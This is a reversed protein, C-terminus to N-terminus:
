VRLALSPSRRLFLRRFWRAFFGPTYTALPVAGATGGREMRAIMERVQARLEEVELACQRIYASTTLGAEAARIKILAREAPALRISIALQRGAEASIDAPEAVMVQSSLVERFAPKAEPQPEPASKAESKGSGAAAKSRVKKVEREVDERAVAAATKKRASATPQKAGAKAVPADQETKKRAPERDNGPWRYRSSRLAEEYTLERVGPKAKVANQEGAWAQFRGLVAEINEVPQTRM